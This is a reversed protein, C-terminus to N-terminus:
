RLDGALPRRLLNLSVSSGQWAAPITFSTRYLGIGAYDKLEQKLSSWPGTEMAGWSGDDFRSSTWDSQASVKGDRDALFKWTDIKLTGLKGRMVRSM